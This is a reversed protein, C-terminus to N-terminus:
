YKNSTEKYKRKARKWFYVGMTVGGMFAGILFSPIVIQWLRFVKGGVKVEVGTKNACEKCKFELSHVDRCLSCYYRGWKCLRYVCICGKEEEDKWFCEDCVGQTSSSSFEATVGDKKCKPCVDSAGANFLTMKVFGIKRIKGCDPCNKGKCKDYAVAWARDVAINNLIKNCSFCLYSM